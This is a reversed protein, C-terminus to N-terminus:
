MSLSLSKKQKTSAYEESLNIWRLSRCGCRDQLSPPLPPLYTLTTILTAGHLLFTTSRLLAYVENESKVGKLTHPEWSIRRARSSIAILLLNVPKWLWCVSRVRVFFLLVPALIQIYPPNPCYSWSYYKVLSFFHQECLDSLAM